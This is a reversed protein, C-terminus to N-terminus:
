RKGPEATPPPPPLERPSPMVEDKGPEATSSPLATGARSPLATSAPITVLTRYGSSQALAAGTRFGAFWDDIARHGAPTGYGARWYSRPPVPPPIGSGGAYLYDVFGDQFGRSFSDSFETGPSSAKFEAWFEKALASCRKKDALNDLCRSYEAPEIIITHLSNAIPGCGQCFACLVSVWVGVKINMEM